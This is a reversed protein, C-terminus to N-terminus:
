LFTLTDFILQPKLWGSTILRRGIWGARYPDKWTEGQLTQLKQSQVSFGGFRRPDEVWGHLHKQKKDNLSQDNVTIFDALWLSKMLANYNNRVFYEPIDNLCDPQRQGPHSVRCGNCIEERYRHLVRELIDVLESKVINMFLSTKAGPTVDAATTSCSTPTWLPPSSLLCSNTGPQFERPSVQNKESGQSTKLPRRLPTSWKLHNASHPTSKNCQTPPNM